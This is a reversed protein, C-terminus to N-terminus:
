SGSRTRSEVPYSPSAGQYSANTMLVSWDEVAFNQLYLSPPHYDRDRESPFLDDPLFDISPRKYGTAIILSGLSRTDTRRTVRLALCVLRVCRPPILSM